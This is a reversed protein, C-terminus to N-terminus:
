DQEQEKSAELAIQHWNARYLFILFVFLLLGSSITYALRLGLYGFQFVFTFIYCSLLKIIWEIIILTYLIENQYGLYVLIDNTARYYIDIIIGWLYIEFVLSVQIAEDQNKTYFSILFDKKIFILSVFIFIIVSYIILM